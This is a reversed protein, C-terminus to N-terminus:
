LLDGLAEDIKPYLFKFGLDEIKESSINQGDLVM